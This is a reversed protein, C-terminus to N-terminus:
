YQWFELYRLWGMLAFAAGMGMLFWRICLDADSRKKVGFELSVPITFDFNVKFM